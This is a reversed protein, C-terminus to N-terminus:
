RVFLARELVIAPVYASAGFAPLTIMMYLVAAINSVNSASTDKGVKWFLSFIILSFPPALSRTRHPATRHPPPAPLGLCYPHLLSFLRPILQLERLVLLM